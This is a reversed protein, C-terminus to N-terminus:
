GYPYGRWVVCGVAQGPQNWADLLRRRGGDGFGLAGAWVLAGLVGFYRERFRTLTGSAGGAEVWLSYARRAQNDERARPKDGENAEISVTRDLTWMMCARDIPPFWCISNERGHGEM